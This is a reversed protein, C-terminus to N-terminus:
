AGKELNDTGRTQLALDQLVPGGAAPHPTTAHDPVLEAPVLDARSGFYAATVDDRALQDARGELVVRGELLCVLRDAVAFTRTLDQEVLVVTTGAALVGPLAAYLGEVVVPALGLSLEDIMLISPNGMLARAIAVAQQEGGSLGTARRRRRDAVLPLLEYVSALSWPGARGTSAGVLLNEEVTLSPFLRRGEPVLLVGERARAHDPMATVDRGDLLVRGATPRLAGAFTRLTTSKGAGNAGVLALVEGEAVEVSVSFLAQFDGYGADVAELSLTSM